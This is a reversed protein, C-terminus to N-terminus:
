PEGDGGKRYEQPTLGTQEKFCRHFNSASQFGALCAIELIGANTQRLLSCAKKVRSNMIYQRPTIGTSRKFLRTFHSPSTNLQRAIINLDVPKTYVQRLIAQASRVLDQEPDFAPMDPRCRKCPRFGAALAAEVTDFFLVNKGVPTKAKCSPRCFIGTTKVAYFFLGDYAKNCRTVAEWKERETLAMTGM